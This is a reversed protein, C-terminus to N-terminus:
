NGSAMCVDKIFHNAVNVAKTIAKSTITASSIAEIENDKSKGTKVVTFEENTNIGQFKQKFEPETCKAGLGPTESMSLVELGTITGETDFGLSLKIDGGYGEKATISVVYGINSGSSDKAILAETLVAGTLGASEFYAPADNVKQNLTDDQEFTAAAPYVTQYAKQKAAAEAQTIPDKTIQYIFGLALGAVLTIAFLAIADPIITNKQKTQNSPM